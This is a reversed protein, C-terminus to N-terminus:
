IKSATLLDEGRKIERPLTGVADPQYDNQNTVIVPTEVPYGAEKITEIDFSILKDCVKVHDGQKVHAEFGKGELNVTDMGIHVLLEVGDDSVLGIAHKTPFLVSVM